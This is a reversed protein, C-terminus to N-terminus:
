PANYELDTLRDVIEPLQNLLRQDDMREDFDSGVIDRAREPDGSLLEQYAPLTDTEILKWRDNFGAINGDPLPTDVTGGVGFPGLEVQKPFEEAFTHAGPISPAGITTLGYTFARGTGAGHNYMDQYDDDIIDHQERFLLRKNGKGILDDNDQKIGTDISEWARRGNDDMLGAAAMRETEKIGGHLYAEHMSGQDDFIQKQMDLLKTEYWALEPASVAGLGRLGPPAGPIGAVTKGLRKLMQLDNFGGAFSPGIMNAMGAWQLDPHDLFLKGYYEYVKTINGANHDTGKTPDWTAPDIGAQELAERKWYDKLFKKYFANTIPLAGSDVAADLLKKAADPHNDVWERFRPDSVIKDVQDAPLGVLTGPPAYERGAAVDKGTATTEDIASDIAFGVAEDESVLTALRSEIAGQHNLRAQERAKTEPVSTISEHVSWHRDDVTFADAIASDVARLLSDRASGLRSAGDNLAAVVTDVQAAIRRGASVERSARALAADAGVGTWSGHASEAQRLVETLSREFADNDTAIQRASTALDHPTM